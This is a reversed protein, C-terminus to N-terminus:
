KLFACCYQSETAKLSHTKKFYHLHLKHNYFLLLLNNFLVDSYQAKNAKLAHSLSPRGENFSRNEERLAHVNFDVYVSSKINQRRSSTTKRGTLKANENVKPM